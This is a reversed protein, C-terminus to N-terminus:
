SKAAHKTELACWIFLSSQYTCLRALWLPINLKCGLLPWKPTDIAAIPNSEIQKGSVKRNICIIITCDDNYILVISQYCSSQSHALSITQMFSAPQTVPFQPSGVLAFSDTHHNAISLYSPSPPQTLHLLVLVLQCM